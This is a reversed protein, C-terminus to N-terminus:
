FARVLRFGLDYVRIDPSVKSRYASRCHRAYSFPGCGRNVRLSGSPPGKPDVMSRSPYDGYWDECWAGVNGHMDYLGWANPAFTAVRLTKKRHEGHSCGSLPGKGDYNAQNTSLCDGTYFVTKTGARAAYEWEAETPLRYNTTGEMENLKSIFAQVDYWSVQEVPCDVGCKKYYSPNNGMVRKWHGQTVPTAQLFFPSSITVQHQIEDDGREPEADPSGMAFTGAPILVFKADMVPSTFIKGEAAVCSNSAIFISLFSIFRMLVLVAKM